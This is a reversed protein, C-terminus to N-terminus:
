TKCDLSFERAVSDWEERSPVIASAPTDVWRTAHAELYNLFNKWRDHLNEKSSFFQELPPVAGPKLARLYDSLLGNQWLFYSVLGDRSESNFAGQRRLVDDLSINPLDASLEAFRWPNVFGFKFKMDGDEHLAFFKEFFVPIGEHGWAPLPTKLFYFFAHTMEHTLSGLGTGRHTMVGDLGSVFMGLSNEPTGLRQAAERYESENEFLLIKVNLREPLPLFNKSFDQVFGVCTDLQESVAAVDLRSFISCAGKSIRLPLLQEVRPFALPAIFLFKFAVAFALFGFARKLVYGAQQRLILRTFFEYFALLAVVGCLFPIDAPFIVPGIRFARYPAYPRLWNVLVAIFFVVAGCAAAAALVFSSISASEIRQRLSASVSM